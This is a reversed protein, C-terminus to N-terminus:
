PKKYKDHAYHILLGQLTFRKIQNEATKPPIGLKQAVSLYTKRNFEPPLADLFQRRLLEPENDSASQPNQQPLTQFVKATHQLLVNVMALATRFDADNCVMTSSINGDDCIRLTTLIMAIRYTILGLRRVSAVIDLGFLAAYQKQIGDFFANFEDQRPKSFCFRIPSSTQLVKYLDYFQEGIRCFTADLTDAGDNAFVDNWVLRVNMFYFIFRSFLGNEADPILTLIQRPTGSLVASLRPSGLEVFERDKRRNYSITEHHFAKRFGDSFNGYDSKFTNALTDGETEFMLGVGKNDNLVQYVSTASSNAPIFLTRLPPEQPQEADPNKKNAVYEAQKRRYEEMEIKYSERLQRHIPEVLHRCLTLRGKGASAQATVFLFLNPFVERGGYIGYVNPLCASFTTLSGLLLLDADEPSVAKAAIQSLLSPLLDTVSESFTPMQESDFDEIDEIDETSSISSISSIASKPVSGQRAPKSAASVSVGAQKALHFLTKVTIGHGHAKLCNDFQRDTESPTYGPYFRSLRHFYSRGNEGLADALAFGLDRWDAYNPAIDVSSSEIRRTIEEIDNNACLSQLSEQSQPIQKTKDSVWESPNFKKKSMM